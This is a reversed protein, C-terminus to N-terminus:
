DGNFEPILSPPGMEELDVSPAPELQHRLWIALFLPPCRPNQRRWAEEDAYRHAYQLAKLYRRRSRPSTDFRPLWYKGGLRCFLGIMARGVRGNGDNFPHIRFFRALFRASAMAVAHDDDSAFASFVTDAYLRRLEPEIRESSVGERRHAGAGGFTVTEGEARFRGAIGPLASGLLKRHSGRLLESFGQFDGPWTTLANLELGMLVTGRDILESLVRYGELTPCHRHELLAPDVLDCLRSRKCSPYPTLLTKRLAECESCRSKAQQWQM